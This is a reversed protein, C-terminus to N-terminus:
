KHRWRNDEALSKRLSLVSRRDEESLSTNNEGTNNSHSDYERDATTYVPSTPNYSPSVPHKTIDPYVESFFEWTPEYENSKNAAVWSVFLCCRHTMELLELKLSDKTVRPTVHSGFCVLTCRITSGQERCERRKQQLSLQCQRKVGKDFVCVIECDCVHCMCVGALLTWMNTHAMFECTCWSRNMFVRGSLSTHRYGTFTVNKRQKQTTISSPTSGVSWVVIVAFAQEYHARFTLWNMM